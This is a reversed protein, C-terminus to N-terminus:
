NTADYEERTLPYFNYELVDEGPELNELIAEPIWKRPHTDNNLELFFEVKFLQM